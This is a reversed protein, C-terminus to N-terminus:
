PAVRDSLSRTSPRRAALAAISDALLRGMVARGTVTFHIYDVFWQEHGTLRSAADVVMVGRRRGLELMVQNAAREFDLVVQATARTGRQWKLLQLEDSPRMPDAFRMAHTVLVPEAGAARIAVVLSDLHRRYLALRDPPVQQYEWGPEHAAVERRIDRRAIWTQVVEPLSWEGPARDELRPTWWKPKRARGTPAEPYTPPEPRLYFAPTPYLVVLTPSWRAVWHDWLVTLHPLDFGSLAANQVDFCGRGDLSRQVQAPYETGADEGGVVSESAGLVAVRVCGAPAAPTVAAGRFGAANLRVKKFRGFPRGRITASDRITLDYGVDLPKFFPVDYRVLDDLRAALEGGALAALVLLPWRLWARLRSLM